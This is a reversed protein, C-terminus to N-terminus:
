DLCPLKWEAVRVPIGAWVKNCYGESDDYGNARKGSLTAPTGARARGMPPTPPVSEVTPKRYNSGTDAPLSLQPDHAQPTQDPPYPVGSSSAPGPPCQASPRSCDTFQPTISIPTTHVQRHLPPYGCSMSVSGEIELGADYTQNTGSWGAFTGASPAGWHRAAQEEAGKGNGKADKEAKASEHPPPFGLGGSMFTDPNSKPLSGVPSIVLNDLGMGSSHSDSDSDNDLELQITSPQLKPEEKGKQKPKKGQGQQVKGKEKQDQSNQVLKRTKKEAPPKAETTIIEPAKKHAKPKSPKLKVPTLKPSPHITNSFTPYAPPEVIGSAPKHYIAPIQPSPPQSGIPEDFDDVVVSSNGTKNRIVFIPLKPPASFSVPRPKTGGPPVIASTPSQVKRLTSHIDEMTAKEIEPYYMNSAHRVRLVRSCDGNPKSLVVQLAPVKTHEVPLKAKVSSALKSVGAKPQKLTPTPGPGLGDDIYSLLDSCIDWDGNQMTASSSRKPQGDGVDQPPSPPGFGDGLNSDLGSVWKNIKAVPNPPSHRDVHARILADRYLTPSRDRTRHGQPKPFRLTLDSGDDIYSLASSM